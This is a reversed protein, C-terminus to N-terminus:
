EYKEVVWNLLGRLDKRTLLTSMLHIEPTGALPFFASTALAIWKAEENPKGVKMGVNKAETLISSVAKLFEQQAIGPTDPAVKLVADALEVSGKSNEGYPKWMDYFGLIYNNLKIKPSRSSALVEQALAQHQEAFFYALRRVIDLKDNYYLYVSGVSVKALKAIKQITTKRVGAELFLQSAAEIIAKEKDGTKLRAM